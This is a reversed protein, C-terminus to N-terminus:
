ELSHTEAYAAMRGAGLLIPNGCIQASFRLDSFIPRSYVRSNVRILCFELNNARM